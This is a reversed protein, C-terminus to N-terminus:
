PKASNKAAPRKAKEDKKQADKDLKAAATKLSDEVGRISRKLESELYPDGDKGIRAKLANLSDETPMKALTRIAYFRVESNPDELSPIVKPLTEPQRLEALKRLANIRVDPSPNQLQEILLGQNQQFVEPPLASILSLSLLLIAPGM